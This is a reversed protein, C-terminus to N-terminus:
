DRAQDLERALRTTRAIEEKAEQQIEETTKKL